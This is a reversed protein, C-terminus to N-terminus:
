QLKEKFSILREIQKKSMDRIFDGEGNAIGYIQKPEWINDVILDNKKGMVGGSVLNEGHIYRRGLKKDILNETAFLKYILGELAASVDLRYIQINREEAIKYADSKITGKGADIILANDQLSRIITDTIVPYGNTAGILIRANKAAKENETKGIVVSKTYIPKILNIGAVIKDLTKKNRRTITVIAGREVLKLALKSGINGAGLITVKTGGIGQIKDKTFESLIAEAADVTIDNGKYLWLKSKRVEERVAREINAPDGSLSMNDPIKKEADVLLYDVKGDIVKTIEKAQKENYVIVGGVIMLITNRIPTLYNGHKDIKTTNGICFGTLKKEKKSIEQIEEVLAICKSIYEMLYGAM